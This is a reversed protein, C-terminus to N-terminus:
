VPRPPAGRKKLGPGEFRAAKDQDRRSQAAAQGAKEAAQGAAVQAARDGQPAGPGQMKSGKLDAAADATRKTKAAQGRQEARATDLRRAEIPTSAQPFNQQWAPPKPTAPATPATPKAAFAKPDTLARYDGIQSLKAMTDPGLMGDPELGTAKQFAVVKQINEPTSEFGTFGQKDNYRAARKADFVKRKRRRRRKQPKQKQKPEPLPDVSIVPAEEPKTKVGGRQRRKGWAKRRGRRSLRPDWEGIKERLLYDMQEEIMQKLQSETLNM